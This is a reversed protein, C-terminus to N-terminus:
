REEMLKEIYEIVDRLCKTDFIMEGKPEFVYKRWGGRWYIKGLLDNQKNLVRIDYTKKDQHKFRSFTLYTTEHQNNMM